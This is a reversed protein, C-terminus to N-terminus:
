VSILNVTSNNSLQAKELKKRDRYEKMKLLKRARYEPNNNYRDRSYEKVAEKNEHYHKHRNRILTERYKEYYTQLVM